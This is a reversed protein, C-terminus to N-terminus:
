ADAEGGQGGGGQTPVPGLGIYCNLGNEDCYQWPNYEPQEGNSQPNNGSCLKTRIREEIDIFEQSDFSALSIIDQGNDNIDLCSIASIDVNERDILIIVIDVDSQSMRIGMDGCVDTGTPVGDTILILIDSRQWCKDDINGDCNDITKYNHIDDLVRNVADWTETQGAPTWRNTSLENLIEMQPLTNSKPGTFSVLETWAALSAYEYLAVYSLPSIDYTYIREVFQLVQQWDDYSVSGSEDMLFAINLADETSCETYTPAISPMATTPSPTTPELTTRISTPVETPDTTPDTTPDSTPSPSPQKNCIGEVIVEDLGEEVFKVEDRSPNTYIRQDDYETLCLIYDDTPPDQPFGDSGQNIILINIGFSTDKNDGRSGGDLGNDGVRIYLEMFSCIEEIESKHYDVIILYYLLDIVILLKNLVM